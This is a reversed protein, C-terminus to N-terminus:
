KLDNLEWKGNEGSAICIHIKWKVNQNNTVKETAPNGFQGVNM